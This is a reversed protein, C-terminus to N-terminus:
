QSSVIMARISMSRRFSGSPKRRLRSRHVMEHRADRAPHDRIIGPFKLASPATSTVELIFVTNMLMKMSLSENALTDASSAARFTPSNFAARLVFTEAHVSFNRSFEYRPM